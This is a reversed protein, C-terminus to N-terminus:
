RVVLQRAVSLRASVVGPLPRRDIEITAVHLSHEAELRAIWDILIGFDADEVEIRTREGEPELRRIALGVLTASQTIVTADPQAASPLSALSLDTGAATIRATVAEYKAIDTIATERMAALPRLVLAFGVYGIVAIGGALILLRERRERGAFWAAMRQSAAGRGMSPFRLPVAQVAERTLRSLFKM